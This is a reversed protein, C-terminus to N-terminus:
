LVLVRRDDPSVPSVISWGTATTQLRQIKAVEEASLLRPLDHPSRPDGADIRLVNNPQAFAPLPVVLLTFLLLLVVWRYSRM